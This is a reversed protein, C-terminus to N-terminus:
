LKTKEIQYDQVVQRNDSFKLDIPIFSKVRGDFHVGM